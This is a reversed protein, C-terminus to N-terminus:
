LSWAALGQAQYLSVAADVQDEVSGSSIHMNQFLGYAGSSTNRVNPQWNSERQIITNWTAAAVGTRSEMQDLVYSKLNAGTYTTTTKTAAQTTTAKTTTTSKPTTSLTLKQGAVIAHHQIHNAKELTAMSTNFKQSIAWVSDGAKVTYTTAADANISGFLFLGVAAVTTTLFTTILKTM